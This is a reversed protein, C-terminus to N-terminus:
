RPAVIRVRDGETLFGAGQVVVPDGPQLGQTIEVLGERRQGTSVPRLLARDTGQPVLFVVARGERFVVAEQPVVLAEAAGAQIEARAFQGPRLQAEPPLRVHVTALRTAAEVTPFIARVEAMIEREGHLVRVPQGPRVRVLELEPVRVDLDLRDDRILRFMEQGPQVVAGVLVSRRSITGDAPALISTQALRVAAEERRARASALRAEAQRAVSQRQELTARAMIDGRQLEAGRRLEAEALRLAAEAEGIAADASALTAAPVAPDLRVLVQGARVRDGPEFGAEIVRLGGSETGVVLEQWANVSGDGIVPRALARREAPRLTVTLAPPPEAAATPAAPTPAHRPWLFWAGAAVALIALAWLWARGRRRATAPVESTVLRDPLSHDPM